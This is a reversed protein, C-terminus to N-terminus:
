GAESVLSKGASKRRATIHDTIHRADVGVGGVLSSAMRSLFPLGILYLGPQDLVIGRHHPPPADPPFGSLAIWSYDM